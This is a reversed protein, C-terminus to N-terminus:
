LQEGAGKEVSLGCLHHSVGDIVALALHQTTAATLLVVHMGEHTFSGRGAAHQSACVHLWTAPDMGRPPINILPWENIVQRAHGTSSLPPSSDQHPHVPPRQTQYTRLMVSSALCRPLCFYGHQYLTAIHIKKCLGLADVDQWFRRRARDLPEHAVLHRPECLWWMRLLARASDELNDLQDKSGPADGLLPVSRRASLTRQYRQLVRNCNWHQLARIKDEAFLQSDLGLAVLTSPLRHHPGDNRTALQDNLSLLASQEIQHGNCFHPAHSWSVRTFLHHGPVPPPAQQFALCADLIQDFRERPIYVDDDHDDQWLHLFPGHDWCGSVRWWAQTAKATHPTQVWNLGDVARWAENLSLDHQMLRRTLQQCLSTILDQSAVVTYLHRQGPDETLLWDLGQWRLYQWRRRVFM